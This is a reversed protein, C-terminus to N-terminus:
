VKGFATFTATLVPTAVTSVTCLSTTDIAIPLGTVVFAAKDGSTGALYGNVQGSVGDVLSAVSTCDTVPLGSNINAGRAVQNRLAADGLEKATRDLSSQKATNSVGVFKPMAIAGLVGIISVVVVLEALTFGRQIQKLFHRMDDVKNLKLDLM